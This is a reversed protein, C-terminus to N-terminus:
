RELWTFGPGGRDADGPRATTLVAELAPDVLGTDPTVSARLQRFTVAYRGAPLLVRTAEQPRPVVPQDDFQAAMTLDTYDTVWLGDGGVVLVSRFDRTSPTASPEAHIDVPADAHEQDLYVVAIRGHPSDREGVPVVRM